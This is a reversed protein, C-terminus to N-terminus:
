VANTSRFHKDGKKTVIFMYVFLKDKLSLTFNLMSTIYKVYHVMYCM